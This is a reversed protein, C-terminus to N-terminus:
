PVTRRPPPPHPGRPAWREAGPVPAQSRVSPRHDRRWLASTPSWRRLGRHPRPRRCPGGHFGGSIGGRHIGPPRATGHLRLSSPVPAPRGRRARCRQFALRAPLPGRLGPLRAVRGSQLLRAVRGGRGRGPGTPLPVETQLICLLEPPAAGRVASPESTPPLSRPGPGRASATCTCLTPQARALLVRPGRAAGTALPECLGSLRATPVPRQRGRPRAEQGLVLSRPTARKHHVPCGGVGRGTGCPWPVRPPM